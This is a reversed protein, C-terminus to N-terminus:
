AKKTGPTGAPKKTTKSNTKQATKGKSTPPKTSGSLAKSTAREQKEVLFEVLGSLESLEDWLDNIECLLARYKWKSVFVILVM